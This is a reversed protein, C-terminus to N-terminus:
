ENSIMDYLLDLDIVATRRGRAELESALARAITSKGSAIPGNILVLM